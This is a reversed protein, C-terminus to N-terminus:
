VVRGFGDLKSYGPARTEAWCCIQRRLAVCHGQYDSSTQECLTQGETQDIEEPVRDRLIESGGVSLVQAADKMNEECTGPETRVSPRITRVSLAICHGIEGEAHVQEGKGAGLRCLDAKGFVKGHRFGLFVRRRLLGISYSFALM